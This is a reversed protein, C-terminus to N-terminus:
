DDDPPRHRRDVFIPYAVMPFGFSIGAAILLVVEVIFPPHQAVINEHSDTTNNVFTCEACVHPEFLHLNGQASLLIGRWFLFNLVACVYGGIMCSFWIDTSSRRRTRSMRKFIMGSGLIFLSAPMLMLPMMYGTTYSYMVLCLVGSLLCLAILALMSIENEPLM